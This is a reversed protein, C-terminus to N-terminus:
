RALSSLMQRALDVYNQARSQIVGSGQDTRLCTAVGYLGILAWLLNDENENLIREYGSLFAMWVHPRAVTMARIHVLDTLWFGPRCHGFDLVTLPAEMSQSLWNGPRFDRHCLVRPGLSSAAIQGKCHDLFRLHSPDITRARLADVRLQFADTLSIADTDTYPMRHFMQLFQGARLATDVNLEAHTGLEFSLLLVRSDAACQALLRPIGCLQNREIVHYADVERRASGHTKHIKLVAETGAQTRALWIHSQEHRGDFFTLFDAHHVRRVWRLLASEDGIDAPLKLKKFAKENMVIASYQRNM